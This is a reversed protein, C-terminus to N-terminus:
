VSTTNNLHMEGYVETSKLMIMNPNDKPPQWNKIPTMFNDGYISKLYEKIRGPYAFKNNNITVTEFNTSFEVTYKKINFKNEIDNVRTPFVYIFRKEEVLDSLFLDFNLGNYNYTLERIEKMGTKQNVVYFSRVVKFGNEALANKFKSTFDSFLMGLDIDIDYSIFSKERYAGLLTGYEPWIIVGCEKSISIIKNLLDDGKRQVNRININEKYKKYPLTLLIWIKQLLSDKYGHQYLFSRIKKKM